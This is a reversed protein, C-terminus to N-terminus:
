SYRPRLKCFNGKLFCTTGASKAASRKGLANILHSHHLAACLYPPAFIQQSTNQYSKEIQRQEKAAAAAGRRQETPAELGDLPGGLCNFGIFLWIIIGHDSYSEGNTQPRAFLYCCIVDVVVVFICFYTLKVVNSKVFGKMQHKNFDGM